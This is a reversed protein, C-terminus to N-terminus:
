FMFLTHMYALYIVDSEMHKFMHPFGGSQLGKALVLWPLRTADDDIGTLMVVEGFSATGAM